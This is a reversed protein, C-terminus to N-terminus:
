VVSVPTWEDWRNSFDIPMPFFRSGSVIDRFHDQWGWWGILQFNHDYWNLTYNIPIVEGKNEPAFVAVALLGLISSAALEIRGERWVHVGAVRPSHPTLDFGRPLEDAHGHGFRHIGYIVDAIDPRRDPLDSQVAIPFRTQEYDIGPSAMAQYIDLSDRITRRFRSAVGLQPYRKKATGDVANCAHFM